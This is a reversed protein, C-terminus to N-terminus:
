HPQWETPIELDIERLAGNRAIQVKIPQPGSAAKQLNSLDAPNGNVTLIIDGPLIDALYAPSGDRIAQVAVARRTEFKAVEDPTLERTLIGAGIKPVFSFYLATKRFRNVQYPLYTTQSGYTTTTGSYSGHASGGTGYAQVNGRSYSTTTTPM